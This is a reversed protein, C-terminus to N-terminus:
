EREVDRFGPQERPPRHMPPENASWDDDGPFLGSVKFGERAARSDSGQDFATGFPIGERRGTLHDGAAEFVLGLARKNEESFSGRAQVVAAALREIAKWDIVKGDM